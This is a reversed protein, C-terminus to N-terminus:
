LKEDMIRPFFLSFTSGKGYESKVEVKGNHALMNSHVLSLGIGAGGTQSIDKSRFFPEFIHELDDSSIGCGKDDITIINFGDKKFSKISIEKIDFSYKMANTILNILCEAIADEDGNIEMPNGSINLNVKFGQAKFQYEFTKIVNNLIKTLSVRAFRYEKAGREIKSFDLVNGILRNLRDCESQIIDLYENRKDDEINKKMQMIEAFLRISTLPTKLEHSVSSVFYSKMSSLEELRRAEEEKIGLKQQLHIRQIAESSQYNMMTLMGIDEVTFRFGSKKKGLIILGIPERNNDVSTLFLECGIEELLGNEDPIYSIGDEMYRSLAFVYQGPYYRSINTIKSINEVDYIFNSGALMVYRELGSNYTLFSTREVPINKMITTVCLQAVSDITYCQKIADVFEQQATRFNYKIKFFRKDIFGQVKSKVPQFIIAVAISAILQPFLGIDHFLMEYIPNILYFIALFLGTMIAFVIFYVSGRNIIFEIDFLRYKLIGIAMTIPSIGVLMTMISEPIHDYGVNFNKPINWLFVFVLPGISTGSLIWLIRRRDILDSNRLYSIIFNVIGLIFFIPLIINDVLIKQYNDYEFFLEINSKETFNIIFTSLWILVTM